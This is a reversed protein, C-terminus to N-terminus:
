LQKLHTTPINTASIRYHEIEKGEVEIRYFGDNCEALITEAPLEKQGQPKYPSTLQYTKGEPKTKKGHIADVIANTIKTPVPINQKQKAM